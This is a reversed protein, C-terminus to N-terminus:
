EPKENDTGPKDFDDKNKGLVLTVSSGKNIMVGPEIHSGKFKQDLVANKYDSLRYEFPAPKLGYTELMAVAQRQSLDILNPMAVQEPLMAVVTLYVKRYRKVKTGPYPDQAIISGKPKSADHISDTIIFSFNDTLDSKTVESYTKGTLDPVTKFEGHHTYVGLFKLIIGAVVITVLVSLAVHKLFVKSKLFQILKM